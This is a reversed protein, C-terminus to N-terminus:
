LSELATQHEGTKRGAKNKEHGATRSPGYAAFWEEVQGDPPPMEHLMFQYISDAAAM